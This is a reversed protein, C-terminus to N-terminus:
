NRAFQSNELVGSGPVFLLGQGKADTVMRLQRHTRGLVKKADIQRGNLYDQWIKRDDTVFYGDALNAVIMAGCSNRLHQVIARVHRRQTERKGAAGLRAALDAAAIPGAEKIIRLCRAAEDANCHNPKM